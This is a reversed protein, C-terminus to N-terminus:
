QEHCKVNASTVKMYHLQLKVDVAIIKKEQPVHQMCQTTFFHRRSQQPLWDCTCSKTLRVLEPLQGYLLIIHFIICPHACIHFKEELTLSSENSCSFLFEMDVLLWTNNQENYLCVLSLMKSSKGFIELSEGFTTRHGSLRKWVNELFNRFIALSVLSKRLLVLSTKIVYSCM